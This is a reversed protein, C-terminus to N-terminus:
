NNVFRCWVTKDNTDNGKLMKERAIESNYVTQWYARAKEVDVRGSNRQISMDGLSKSTWLLNNMDTLGFLYSDIIDLMQKAVSKYNSSRVSVSGSNISYREERTVIDPDVGSTFIKKVYSRWTFDGDPWGSTINTPINFLFDGESNQSEIDEPGAENFEYVMVWGDSAKYDNSKVIFYLTDGSYVVEPLAVPIKVPPM